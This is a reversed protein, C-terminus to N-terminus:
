IILRGAAGGVTAPLGLTITAAIATSASAFVGRQGVLALLVFGTILSLACVIATEAAPHQFASPVHVSHEKFQSAFLIVYCLIVTAALLALARWPGLRGAIVLVEETPAVNLSFVTAGALAAVAEKFDAELQRREPDKDARQASEGPWAGGSEDRRRMQANAFSVGLSVAGAEIVIKGIADRLSAGGGIEGILWLFAGAFLLGLALATIAESVAEGVSYEDRFGSLLSFLFNVVLFVGLLGLLHWESVTIGHFWMEMTYLLPMGVIAGAAIGRM